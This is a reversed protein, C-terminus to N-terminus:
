QVGLLSEAVRDLKGAIRGKRSRAAGCDNELHLRLEFSQHRPHLPNRRHEALWRLSSNLRANVAYWNWKGALLIQRRKIEM